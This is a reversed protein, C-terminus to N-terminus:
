VKLYVINDRYKVGEQHRLEYQKQSINGLTVNDFLYGSDCVVNVWDMEICKLPGKGFYIDLQLRSIIKQAPETM